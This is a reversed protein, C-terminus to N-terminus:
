KKPGGGSQPTVGGAGAHSHLAACYVQMADLIAQGKAAIEARAEPSLGREDAFADVDPVTEQAISYMAGLRKEYKDSKQQPTM